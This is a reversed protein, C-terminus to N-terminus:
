PQSPLSALVLAVYRPIPTAGHLWRSVQRRTVGVLAAFALGTLRRERLAARLDAPTM